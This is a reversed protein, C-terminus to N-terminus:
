RTGRVHLAAAVEHGQETMCLDKGLLGRRQLDDLDRLSMRDLCALHMDDGKGHLEACLLAQQAPTMPQFHM